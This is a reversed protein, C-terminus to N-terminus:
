LNRREYTIQALARVQDRSPRIGPRVARLQAVAAEPKEALGQSLLYAAAFVASRGHGLACHVYVPGVALKQTIFEVGLRLEEPTPVSRDLLPICLYAPVTRLFRSESFEATLDLVSSIGRERFRAADAPLLRGGVFLGPSVEHFPPERSIWRFFAFTAWNLLHYPWFVVYSSFMVQGGRRKGLLGPWRRFYAWSVLLLGLGGIGLLYNAAALDSIVGFILLASGAMLFVLSLKM